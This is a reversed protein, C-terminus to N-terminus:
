RNVVEYCLVDCCHSCCFSSLCAFDFGHSFHAFVLNTWGPCAPVDCNMEEEADDSCKEGGYLPTPNDCKRMRLKVSKGCSQSCPTWHSWASWEGNVACFHVFYFRSDYTNNLLNCSTHQGSCHKVFCPEKERSAGICNTKKSDQCTRERTRSGGAGCTASCVSWLSWPLFDADLEACIIENLNSADSQNIAFILLM